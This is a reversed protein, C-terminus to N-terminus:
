GVRYWTSTILDYCLTFFSGIALTTPAGIVSVAGNPTITLTTVAHTTTVILVQKDRCGSALPLVITGAAYDTVPTLILHTDKANSNANISFATASPASYQSDAEPRGVPMVAEIATVLDTFSVGRYDGQNSKWLVFWDGGDVSDAQSLKM